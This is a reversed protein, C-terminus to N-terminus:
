RWSKSLCDHEGPLVVGGLETARVEVEAADEEVEAVDLLRCTAARRPSASYSRMPIIVPGATMPLRQSAHKRAPSHSSADLM